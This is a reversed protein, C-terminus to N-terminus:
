GPFPTQRWAGRPGMRSWSLTWGSFFRQSEPGPPGGPRRGSGEARGRTPLDAPFIEQAMGAKYKCEYDFLEHEPIIEGVPLPEDGLIGM